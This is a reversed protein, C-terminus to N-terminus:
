RASHKKEVAPKLTNTFGESTKVLKYECGVVKAIAVMTLHRPYLTKANRINRVTQPSIFTKEAVSTPSYDKVTRLLEFVARDREPYHPKRKRVIKKRSM